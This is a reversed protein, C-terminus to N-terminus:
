RYDFEEGEDDQRAEIDGTPIEQRFFLLDDWTVNRGEVRLVFREAIISSLEATGIDDRPSRLRFEELTPHGDYDTTRRWGRDSEEDVSYDAWSVVGTFAAVPLAGIDLLEVNMTAGDAREYRLKLSSVDFGAMGQTSGERSVLTFDGIDDRFFADFERFNLPRSVRPGEAMDEVAARMAEAAAGLGAAADSLGERVGDLESDASSGDQGCAFCGALFFGGIVAAPPALRSKTTRM